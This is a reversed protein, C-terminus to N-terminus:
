SLANRSVSAHSRWHNERSIALSERANGFDSPGRLFAPKENAAAKQDVELLSGGHLCCSLRAPEAASLTPSAEMMLGCSVAAPECEPLFMPPRRATETELGVEGRLAKVLKMRVLPREISHRRSWDRYLTSESHLILEYLETSM